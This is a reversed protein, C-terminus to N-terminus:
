HSKDSIKKVTVEFITPIFKNIFDNVVTERVSIFFDTGGTSLNNQITSTVAPEFGSGCLELPGIEDIIIIKTQSFNISELIKRASCFSKESFIYGGIKVQDSPSSDEDWDLKIKKGSAVDKLYRKGNLTITLVGAANKLQPLLNLLYTTKGSGKKGTIVNIKPM